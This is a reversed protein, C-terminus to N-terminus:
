PKFSSGDYSTTMGETDYNNRMEIWVNWLMKTMGWCM